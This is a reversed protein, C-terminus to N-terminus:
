NTRVAASTEGRIVGQSDIFDLKIRNNAADFPV